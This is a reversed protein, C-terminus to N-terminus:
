MKLLAKTTMIQIFHFHKLHVQQCAPCLMDLSFFVWATSHMEVTSVLMHLCWGMNQVRYLMIAYATYHNSIVQLAPKSSIWLSAKLDLVNMGTFHYTFHRSIPVCFLLDKNCNCMLTTYSYTHHRASFFVYAISTTYYVHHAANFKIIYVTSCSLFEYAKLHCSVM